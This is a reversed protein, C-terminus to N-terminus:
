HEYDQLQRRKIQMELKHRQRNWVANLIMTVITVLSVLGALITLIISWFEASLFFTVGLTSGAVSFGFLPSHLLSFDQLMTTVSTRNTTSAM